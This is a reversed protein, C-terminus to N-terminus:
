KSKLTRRNVIRRKLTRRNLTKNVKSKGVINDMKLHEIFGIKLFQRSTRCASALLKYHDSRLFAEIHRGQEITKFPIYFTNPGVGYKGTYDMEYELKPSIAFIVAKKIGLGVALDLKNTRLKKSPTYIVSYKTGSYSDLSKGRNYVADNKVNGIYKKVLNEVYMTWNRVPNIPRDELKLKFHQGNTGEILTINSSHGPSTKEMLFYCVFQQIGPFFSQNEDNFSVFQVNNQILTKYAVNGSGSLMNDPVVFSLYGGIQLMNGVAKLFIREYLKSKGGPGKVNLDEQFPPNGVICDFKIDEFGTNNSLFDSCVINAEQGFIQQCIRVNKVNLEVMYLMNTIIHESREHEKPFATKLGFMLRQYVLIMFNGTGCSPDLWKLDPNSWVKNPFRDLMKNILAPPTFVEGYKKKEVTKVPLHKHIFEEIEETTMDKILNTMGKNTYVLLNFM